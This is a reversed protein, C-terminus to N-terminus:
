PATTASKQDDEEDWDCDDWCMCCYRLVGGLAILGISGLALPTAAAILATSGVEGPNDFAGWLAFLVALAAAVGGVAMLVTSLIWSGGGSWEKEHGDVQDVM